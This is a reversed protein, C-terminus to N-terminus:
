AGEFLDEIIKLERKCTEFDTKNILRDKYDATIRKKYLNDLININHPSKIKNGNALLCDFFAKKITGHSFEREDGKGITDLFQEYDFGETILYNKIKIFACYYTRNAGTNYAAMSDCKDIIKKYEDIKKTYPM